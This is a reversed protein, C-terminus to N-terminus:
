ALYNGNKDQPLTTFDFNGGAADYCDECSTGSDREIAPQRHCHECVPQSPDIEPLPPKPRECIEVLFADEETTPPIGADMRSLIRGAQLVERATLAGLFRKLAEDEATPARPMMEQIAEIEKIATKIGTLTM